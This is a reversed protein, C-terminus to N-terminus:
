WDECDKICRSELYRAEEESYPLRERPKAVYHIPRCRNCENYMACGNEGNIIKEGCVKCVKM